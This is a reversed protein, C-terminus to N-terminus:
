INTRTKTQRVNSERFIRAWSASTLGPFRLASRPWGAAAASVQRQHWAHRGGGVMEWVDCGWCVPTPVLRSRPMQDHQGQSVSCQGEAPTANLLCRLDTHTLPLPTFRYVKLWYQKPSMPMYLVHRFQHQWRSVVASMWLHQDRRCRV